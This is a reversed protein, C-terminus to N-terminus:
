WGENMADIKVLVLALMMIAEHEFTPAGTMIDCALMVSHLAAVFWWLWRIM